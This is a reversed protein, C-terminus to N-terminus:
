ASAREFDAGYRKAIDSLASDIRGMLCDAEHQIEGPMGAAPASCHECYYEYSGSHRVVGDVYENVQRFGILKTTSRIEELLSTLRTVTSYSVNM